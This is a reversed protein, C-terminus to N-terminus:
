YGEQKRGEYPLSDLQEATSVSQIRYTTDDALSLLSNEYGTIDESRGVASSNDSLRSGVKLGAGICWTLRVRHGSAELTDVLLQGDGASLSSAPQGSCWEPGSLSVYPRLWTMHKTATRFFVTHKWTSGIARFITAVPGYPTEDLVVVATDVM